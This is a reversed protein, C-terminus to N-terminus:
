LLFSLFSLFSLLTVTRNETDTIRERGNNRSQRRLHAMLNNRLSLNPTRGLALPHRNCARCSISFLVPARNLTRIREIGDNGHVNNNSLEYCARNARSPQEEASSFPNAMSSTCTILTLNLIYSFLKKM